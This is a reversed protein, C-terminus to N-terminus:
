KTNGFILLPQEIRVATLIDWLTKLTGRKIEVDYNSRIGLAPLHLWIRATWMPYKLVKGVQQDTYLVEKWASGRTKCLERLHITKYPDISLRRTGWFRFQSRSEYLLVALMRKGEGKNM